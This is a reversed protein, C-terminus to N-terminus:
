PCHGGGSARRSDRLYRAGMREYFGVANRTPTGNSGLERGAGGRSRRRLPLADAGVGKGIWAPDVWLDDLEARERWSWRPSGSSRRRGCRRRSRGKGCLRLSDAWVRVREHATAGLLGELRRAVERLREEEGPGLPGFTCWRAVSRKSLSSGPGSSARRPGSCRRSSASSTARRSSRKGTSGNRRRSWLSSRRCGRIRRRDRGAGPQLHQGPLRDWERPHARDRDLASVARTTGRRLRRWSPRARERGRRLARARDERPRGPCSRSWTAGAPASGRARPGDHEFWSTASSPPRASPGAIRRGDLILGGGIGTGLTLMVMHRERPGRRVGMGCRPRTRTTTSGSRISFRRQMWDRFDLRSSRSISPSGVRGRTQDITGPDRLRARRGWARAPEAVTKELGDILDGTSSPADAATIERTIRGERDVLGALIKTGGLDVGIVHTAEVAAAVM